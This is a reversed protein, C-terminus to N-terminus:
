FSSRPNERFGLTQATQSGNNKHSFARLVVCPPDIYAYIIMHINVMYLIM